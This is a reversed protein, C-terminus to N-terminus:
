RKIAVLDKNIIIRVETHRRLLSPCVWCEKTDSKSLDYLNTTTITLGGWYPGNFTQRYFFNVKTPHTRVYLSKYHYRPTPNTKNSFPLKPNRRLSPALAKILVIATDGNDWSVKLTEPTSPNPSIQHNTPPILPNNKARTATFNILKRINRVTVFIFRLRGCSSYAIAKFAEGAIADGPGDATSNYSTEPLNLHKKRRGIFLFRRHKETKPSVGNRSDTDSSSSSKQSGPGRRLSPETPFKKNKQRLFPRPSAAPYVTYSYWNDM